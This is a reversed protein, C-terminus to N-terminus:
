GFYSDRAKDLDANGAALHALSKGFDESTNKEKDEGKKGDAPTLGKFLPSKEEQKEVFLFSKSEQLTKIQEDLGETVKGTEDVKIKSKDIQGIVMDVDHVKGILDLKMATALNTDKLKTEFDATETDYKGQLTTLQTQLEESGEAKKKLDKLDSDRQTLQGKLDTVSSELDTVKSKHSEVTKGHEAMIKDIAADDLGLGKLFERNM